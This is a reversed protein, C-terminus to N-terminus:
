QSGNRGPAVGIQNSGDPESGTMTGTVHTGHELDDYPADKHSVADYWNMEHNPTAPNEPDYGQYKEKLAPHDWQVGTDISAVVTGTGDYGSAWAQPADIQSINWEIGEKAKIEKQKKKMQFPAISQRQTLQRKENPLVKEVEPFSAAKEMVEKSATVAMGNVIYYSHIHDAKGKKKQKEM